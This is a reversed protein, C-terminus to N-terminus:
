KLMKKKTPLKCLMIDAPDDLQPIGDMNRDRNLTVVEKKEAEATVLIKHEVPGTDLCCVSVANLAIIQM